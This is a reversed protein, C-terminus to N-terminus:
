ERMRVASLAMSWCLSRSSCSTTAADASSSRYPLAMWEISRSPNGIMARTYM